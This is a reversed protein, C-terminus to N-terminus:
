IEFTMEAEKNTYKEDSRTIKYKAQQTRRHIYSYYSNANGALYAMKGVSASFM